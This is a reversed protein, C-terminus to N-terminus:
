DARNYEGSMLGGTSFQFDEAKGKTANKVLVLPGVQVLDEGSLVPEMTKRDYFYGRRTPDYGVQTWEKSNLVEQALKYTDESSEKVYDGSVVAHPKKGEGAAIKLSKIQLPVSQFLDVNKMRIAPAYITKGDAADKGGKLTVVWVDNQTYANIDLRSTTRVGDEMEIDYGLFPSTRKKSDLAFFMDEYTAPKPVFDWVTVPKTKDALKRFDDVSLEGSQVKQAAETMEEFRRSVEKNEGKGTREKWASQLKKFEADEVNLKGVPADDIIKRSVIGRGVSKPTDFREPNSVPYLYKKGGPKIDFASGEPVLHLKQMERFQKEDVVIPDGIEVSGIAKAEGDGTKAIGIRQGVYSNLSPTDRTEYKKNGSIIEEAYDVGAKVDKRVNIATKVAKKAGRGMIGVGPLAGIAGLAAMGYNGEEYDKVAEKASLIEGTVPALEAVTRVIDEGTFPLDGEADPSGEEVYTEDSSMLGGTDMGAAERDIEYRQNYTDKDAVGKAFPIVSLLEKLQDTDESQALKYTRPFEAIPKEVAEPDNSFLSSFYGEQDKDVKKIVEQAVDLTAKDKSFVGKDYLQPLANVVIQVAKLPSLSTRNEFFEIAQNKLKKDGGVLGRVYDFSRALIEESVGIDNFINTAGENKNFLHFAEHRAVNDRNEKGGAVNFENVGEVVLGRLGTNGGLFPDGESGFPINLFSQAKDGLEEDYPLDPNSGFALENLAEIRADTNPDQIFNKFTDPDSKYIKQVVSSYQDRINRVVEEKSLGTQKAVIDVDDIANYYKLFIEELKDDMQEASMLGGKDMKAAEKTLQDIEEQTLTGYSKQPIVGDIEPLEGGTALINAVEKAKTIFEERDPYQQRLKRGFENNNLDILSEPDNGEKFDGLYGAIGRQAKGFASESEPDGYILGGFLIHRLTDEVSDNDDLKSGKAYDRSIALADVVDEDTGTLYAPVMELTSIGFDMYKPEREKAM